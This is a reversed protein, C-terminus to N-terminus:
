SGCESFSNNKGPSRTSKNKECSAHPLIQTYKVSLLDEDSENEKTFSSVATSAYEQLMMYDNDDSNEFTLVRRTTPCNESLVTSTTPTEMTAEQTHKTEINTM